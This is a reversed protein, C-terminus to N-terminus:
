FRTGAFVPMWSHGYCFHIGSYVIDDDWSFWLPSSYVSARLSLRGFELFFFSSSPLM